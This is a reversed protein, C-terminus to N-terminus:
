SADLSSSVSFCEGIAQLCNKVKTVKHLSPHSSNLQSKHGHFATHQLYIIKGMINILHVDEPCGAKEVDTSTLYKQVSIDPSQSITVDM